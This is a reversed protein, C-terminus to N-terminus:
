GASGERPRPPLKVSLNRYVVLGVHIAAFLGALIGVTKHTLFDLDFLGVFLGTLLMLFAAEGSWLILRYLTKLTM